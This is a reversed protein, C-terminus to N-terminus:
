LMRGTAYELDSHLHFDTNTCGRVDQSCPPGTPDLASAIRKLSEAISALSSEIDPPLDRSM